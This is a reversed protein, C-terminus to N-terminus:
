REHNWVSYVHDTSKAARHCAVCSEIRGISFEGPGGYYFYEWDGNAADYGPHRKIMGGVGSVMGDSALKEKVIVAGVPFPAARSKITPLAAPSAYLHVSTRYHPGTLQKEREVVAQSPITCLAATLPAVQHPRETLRVFNRYFSAANAQTITLEASAIGAAAVAVACVLWQLSSKV